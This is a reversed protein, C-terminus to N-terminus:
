AEKEKMAALIDVPFAIDPVCANKCRGCGVCGPLGFRELLFKQKRYIRHRIRDAASKRFNHGDAVVAFNKLTCGDWVRIRQGNELSLDVEDQVDFCYCTPCVLVCSGCSFCKQALKEWIPHNEKGTLFTPAEDRSMPLTVEDAVANKMTTAKQIIQPSAPQATSKNFLQKGQQSIIEIGYTDGDCDILMCDAAKYAEDRIMSSTFRHKYPRTPYIGLILTQSRRSLYNGDSTGESFARDLLAIAALDGPHVGILVQPLTDRIEKYSRPDKLKYSLLTEKPPQLFVKPPLLTEDYDLILKDADSLVDYAFRRDKQVVGVVRRSGGILSQVFTKFENKSIQFLEM